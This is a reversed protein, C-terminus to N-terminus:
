FLFTFHPACKNLKKVHGTAKLLVPDSDLFVEQMAMAVHALYEPWVATRWFCSDQGAGKGEDQGSTAANPLM